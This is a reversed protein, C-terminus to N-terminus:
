FIVDWKDSWWCSSCYITYISDQHFVSLLNIGCLDCVRKYLTRENRWMLRRKLRCEPCFTPPPVKIKEYFLFDDSEIVFEQKCNQCNKTGPSM